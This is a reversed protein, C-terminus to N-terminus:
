LQLRRLISNLRRTDNKLILALKRSSKKIFQNDNVADYAYKIFAAVIDDSQPQNSYIISELFGIDYSFQMIDENTCETVFSHIKPPTPPLLTKINGQYTHGVIISRFETTLLRNLQPNKLYIEAEDMLDKGRPLPRRTPDLGLTHAFSVIGFVPNSQGAKVLSGLPPSTYLGYCQTVFENTNSEIIEGLRTM